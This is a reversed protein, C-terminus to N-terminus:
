ERLMADLAHTERAGIMEFQVGMMADKTWRVVGRLMGDQPLGKLKIHVVVTAGFPAPQTTQIAMGGLSLDLCTGEVMQGSEVCFSVPVKVEKRAHRRKEQVTV